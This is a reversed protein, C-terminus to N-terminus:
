CAAATSPSGTEAPTATGSAYLLNLTGTATTTDNNLPEAQWQFAQPVATSTSSNFVSAVFTQPRSNFGASSTATGLAPLNLKGGVNIATTGTQTLISNQINTATTFLPITNATGGTTTVNSSAAPTAAPTAVSGGDTTAQAVSNVPPAALVFASAPLGGVTQADAAKLAYPVSLLSVRPQEAQGQVQVGLWRAEGAVFLDPSLGSSTTSGLLVTYHGTKDPYVNQTELWLPAGGQEDKYLAFTVGAVGSIPKGNGDTLVGNFSVLPPVVATSSASSAVAAQQGSVPVTCVMLLLGLCLVVGTRSLNRMRSM